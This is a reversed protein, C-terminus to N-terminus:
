PYKRFRSLSKNVNRLTYILRLSSRARCSLFKQVVRVTLLYRRIQLYTDTTPYFHCRQISAGPQHAYYGIRDMTRYFWLQTATDPLPRPLRCPEGPGCNCPNNRTRWYIYIYISIYIYLNLLLIASSVTSIRAYRKVCRLIPIGITVHITGFTFIEM